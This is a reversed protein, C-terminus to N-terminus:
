GRSVRASCVDSVARAVLVEVIHRKYEASGWFDSEPQCGRTALRGVDISTVLIEEISVGILAAEAEAVRRPSPGLCLALRAETCVADVDFGMLLAVAVLPGEGPCFRLYTGQLTAAPKPIVVATLLEDRQLATVGRGVFFDSMTITREGRLSCATVSAACAVLLTGPDSRPQAACLNGGLTAVNRLRVNGVKGAVEALLPFHERVTPSQELTRHTALPGIRLVDSAPDFEVQPLGRITKIDVVCAPRRVGRKLAQVLESGGALVSADKGYVALLSVADEISQPQHLVFPAIVIPL